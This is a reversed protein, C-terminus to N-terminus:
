FYPDHVHDIQELELAAGLVGVAQAVGVVVGEEGAVFRYHKGKMAVGPQHVAEGVVAGVVLLQVHVAVALFAGDGRSEVHGHEVMEVAEVEHEVHQGAHGAQAVLASVQLLEDLILQHLVLEVDGVM